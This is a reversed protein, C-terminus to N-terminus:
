GGTGLLRRAIHGTLFMGGLLIATGVGIRTVITYLDSLHFFLMADRKVWTSVSIALLTLARGVRHLDAM